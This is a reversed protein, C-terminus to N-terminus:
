SFPSETKGFSNRSVIATSVQHLSGHVSILEIGNFIVIIIEFRELKAIIFGSIVTSRVCTVSRFYFLIYTLMEIQEKGLGLSEADLEDEPKPLIYSRAKKETEINM